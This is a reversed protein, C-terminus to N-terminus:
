EGPAVATERPSGAPPLDHLVQPLLNPLDEAILGPGGFRNACEAHIWVGAAAAPFGQMGQALLGGIIGALVDGAGATALSAPANANIAARGDPAAVVTDGGKIIVVAGSRHAGARARELKSGALPGFLRVFEGEHPTLVVPRNPRAAIAGFLADPDDKFVTLADADLVAAADSALLALVNARTREDVGAAPGIVAATIRRDELLLALGAIGDIPKLMISTVHPAQILLANHAGVLTVLGAGSRLAATAALRSAGTQLPGGSVVICHGRSYKHGEPQPRPLTWLSPRNEFTRVEIEALAREPIGIDALVLEGCRARGPYLLHGPKKRFFTVTLAARPSAGRVTGSAGDVGSPVDVAVVPRGGANIAEVLAALDGGLDRDLGAGLLADVLLEAGALAAPGAREVDGKWLGAHFAADGKLKGREGFLAVRVPWGREKLLRAVVFGDGGNNGPGCLVLTACPGYRGGIADAVARGANEMLTRSAVGAAVALADARAMEAPTLLEAGNSGTM